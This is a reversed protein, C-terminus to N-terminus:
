PTAAGKEISRCNELICAPDALILSPGAYVACALAYRRALSPHRAMAAQAAAAADPTVAAYDKELRGTAIFARDLAFHTIGWRRVYDALVEPRDTAAAALSAKLRADIRTFYGKHYPIAHEPSAIVSRGTLAPLSELQDSIGGIRSGAPLRAVFAIAGADDPRVARGAKVMGVGVFLALTLAAMVAAARRVQGRGAALACATGVLHGFALPATIELLRQSYRSPLHLQFAVAAAIAYCVLASGIALAYVPTPHWRAFDPRRKMRWAMAALGLAPLIILAYLLWGLPDAAGECPFAEPAFGMRRSCIWGIQGAADVIASRGHPLALSPMALAEKFSIAPGFAGTRAAFPLAAALLVAASGGVLALTRWSWDFFRPPKRLKGLGLMGFAAVAPAPYVAGLLGIGAVTPVARGRVLGYLFLLLLPPSFVRPTGSLLIDADTELLLLASAALFAAMPYRTLALAVKWALVATIGLLLLPILKVALVPGIGILGFGRLLWQFPLPTVTQWYDALLDGKLAAPDALRADWSLFQRADDDILWHSGPLLFGYRWLFHLALCGVLVGYLWRWHRGHPAAFAAAIRNM